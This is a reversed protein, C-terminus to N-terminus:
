AALVLSRPKLPVSLRETELFYRGFRRIHERAYPSLCTLHPQTVPYGDAIPNELIDTVGTVNHLMIANALFNM